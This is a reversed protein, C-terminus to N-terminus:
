VAETLSSQLVTINTRTHQVRHLRKLYVLLIDGRSRRIAYIKVHGFNRHHSLPLHIPGRAKTHCWALSNCSLFIVPHEPALPRLRFTSNASTNICCKGSPLCLPDLLWSCTFRRKATVKVVDCSAWSCHFKRSRSPHGFQGVPPM